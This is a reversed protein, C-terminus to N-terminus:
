KKNKRMLHSAIIILCGEPQEKPFFNNLLMSKYVRLWTLRLLTKRMKEKYIQGDFDITSEDNEPEVKLETFEIGLAEKEEEDEEEEEESNNNNNNNDIKVDKIIEDQADETQEVQEVMVQYDELLQNHGIFIEDESGNLVLTIRTTKFKKIDM